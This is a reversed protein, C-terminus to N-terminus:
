LSRQILSWRNAVTTSVTTAGFANNAGSQISFLASASRKRKAAIPAADALKHKWVFRRWCHM